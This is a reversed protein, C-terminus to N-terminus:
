SRPIEGRKLGQLSLINNKAPNEGLKRDPNKSVPANNRIENNRIAM